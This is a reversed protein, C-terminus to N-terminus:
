WVFAQKVKFRRNSHILNRLNNSCFSKPLISPTGATARRAMARLAVASGDLNKWLGAAWYTVCSRWSCSASKPELIGDLREIKMMGPLVQM